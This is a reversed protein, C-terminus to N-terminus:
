RQERQQLYNRSPFESAAADVFNRVGFYNPLFLGLGNKVDKRTWLHEDDFISRSTNQLTGLFKSSLLDMTPNGVIFGTGLGTTRGYQFMPEGRTFQLLTDIGAPALSSFGARQFAAKAIQDIELRKRREEDNHAFNISNQVAYAMGAFMM